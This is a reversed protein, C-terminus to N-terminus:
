SITKLKGHHQNRVQILQMSFLFRFTNAFFYINIHVDLLPASASKEKAYASFQLLKVEGNADKLDRARLSTPVFIEVSNLTQTWTYPVEEPYFVIKDTM